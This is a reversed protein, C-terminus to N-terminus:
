PYGSLGEGRALREADEMHAHSQRTEDEGNVHGDGQTAHEQQPEGRGQPTATPYCSLLYPCYNNM